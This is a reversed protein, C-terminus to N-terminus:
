APSIDIKIIFFQLNCSFHKFNLFKHLITIIRLWHILSYKILKSFQLFPWLERIKCFWAFYSQLTNQIMIVEMFICFVWKAGPVEMHRFIEHSTVYILSNKLPIISKRIQFFCTHFINYEWSWKCIIMVNNQCNQIFQWSIVFNSVCLFYSV